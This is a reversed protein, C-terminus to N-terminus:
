FRHARGSAFGEINWRDRLQQTQDKDLVLDTSLVASPRAQNKLFTIQQEAFANGMAIDAIAAVLPPEGILPWPHSGSANLKIHLVDRAPILLQPSHL